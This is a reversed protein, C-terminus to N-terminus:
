KPINPKIFSILIYLVLLYTIALIIISTCLRGYKCKSTCFFNYMDDKEDYFMSIVKFCLGFIFFSLSLGFGLNLVCTVRCTEDFFKEHFMTVIFVSLTMSAFTYWLSSMRDLAKSILLNLSYKQSGQSDNKIKRFLCGFLRDFGMSIPIVLLSAASAYVAFEDFILDYLEDYSKNGSYVFAFIISYPITILFLYVEDKIIILIKKIVIWLQKITAYLKKM